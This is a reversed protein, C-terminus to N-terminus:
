TQTVDSAGNTSILMSIRLTYELRNSAVAFCPTPIEYVWPIKQEAYPYVYGVAAAKGISGRDILRVVNGYSVAKFTSSAAVTDEVQPCRSAIDLQVVPANPKAATDAFGVFAKVSRMKMSFRAKQADTLDNLNLQNLAMEIVENAKYILENSVATTVVTFNVTIPFWPNEIVPPVDRPLNTIQYGAMSKKLRKIMKIAKPASSKRRYRRYPM